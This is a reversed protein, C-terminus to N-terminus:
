DGLMLGTLRVHAARGDDTARVSRGNEDVLGARMLRGLALWPEPGEFHEALQTIRVAHSTVVKDLLFMALSDGLAVNRWEWLSHLHMRAEARDVEGDDSTGTQDGRRVAGYVLSASTRQAQAPRFRGVEEVRTVSPEQIVNGIPVYTPVRADQVAATTM